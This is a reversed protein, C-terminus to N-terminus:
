AAGGIGHEEVRRRASPEREGMIQALEVAWLIVSERAHEDDLADDTWALEIRDLLERARRMANETAPAFLIAAEVWGSRRGEGAGAEVKGLAAAGLTFEIARRRRRSREFTTSTSM